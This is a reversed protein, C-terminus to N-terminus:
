IYQVAYQSGQEDLWRSNGRFLKMQSSHMTMTQNLEPPQFTLLNSSPQFFILHVQGQRKHTQYRSAKKQVQIIRIKQKPAVFVSVLATCVICLPYLLCNNPREATPIKVFGAILHCM